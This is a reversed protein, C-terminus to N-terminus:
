NVNFWHMGWNVYAHKTFDSKCNKKEAVIKFNNKKPEM